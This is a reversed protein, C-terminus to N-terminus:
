KRYGYVRITGTTFTPGGTILVTFSTYSTTDNLLGANHGSVGGVGQAHPASFHTNEALFPSYVTCDFAIRNQAYGAFDWEAVNSGAVAGVAGGTYAVYPLGWYYNAANTGMRLKVANSSSALGNDIIIKYTDYDASFAGTVTVSSVGSAITQTKVLWLGISDMAAATLVEGPSFDPVPM